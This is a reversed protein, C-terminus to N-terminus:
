DKKVSIIPLLATEQHINMKSKSISNEIYNSKDKIQFSKKSVVSLLTTLIILGFLITSNKM